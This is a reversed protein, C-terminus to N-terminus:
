LGAVEEVISIGLREWTEILGDYFPNDECNEILGRDGMWNLTRRMGEVVTV